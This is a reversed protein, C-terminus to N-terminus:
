THQSRALFVVGVCFEFGVLLSVSLKAEVIATDHPSTAHNDWRWSPLSNDLVECLFGPFRLMVKIVLMKARVRSYVVRGVQRARVCDGVPVRSLPIGDAAM